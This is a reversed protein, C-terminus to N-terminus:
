ESGGVCRLSTQSAYRSCYTGAILFHWLRNNNYIIIWSLRVLETHIIFAFSFYKTIAKETNNVMTYHSQQWKRTCYFRFHFHFFTNSSFIFVLLLAECSMSFPTRQHDVKWNAELVLFSFCLKHWWQPLCIGQESLVRTTRWLAHTWVHNTMFAIDVCVAALASISDWDVPQSVSYNTQAKILIPQLRFNFPTYYGWRLRVISGCLPLNALQSQEKHETWLNKINLSLYSSQYWQWM